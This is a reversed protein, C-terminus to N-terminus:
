VNNQKLDYFRDFANFSSKSYVAILLHRDLGANRLHLGHAVWMLM